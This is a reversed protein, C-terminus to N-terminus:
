AIGGWDSVLLGLFEEVILRQLLLRLLCESVHLRHGHVHGVVLLIPGVVDLIAVARLIAVDVYRLNLGAGLARVGRVVVGM